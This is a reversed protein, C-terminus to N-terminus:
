IEMKVTTIDIINGIINSNSNLKTHNGFFKKMIKKGSFFNMQTNKNVKNNLSEMSTESGETNYARNNYQDALGMSLNKHKNIKFYNTSKYINQFPTENNKKRKIEITNNLDKSELYSNDNINNYNNNVINYHTINNDNPNNRSQIIYDILKENNNLEQNNQNDLLKQSRDIRHNYNNKIYPRKSFLINNSNNIYDNKQYNNGLENRSKTNINYPNLNDPQTTKININTNFNNSTQHFQNIVIEPRYKAKYLISHKPVVKSLQPYDDKIYKSYPIFKEKEKFLRNVKIQYPKINNNKSM